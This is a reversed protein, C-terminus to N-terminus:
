KDGLVAARRKAWGDAAKANMTDVTTRNKAADAVIAHPATGPVLRQTNTSAVVTHAANFLTALSDNTLKGVDRGAILTEVAKNTKAGEALATRMLAAAADAPKAAADGAPMKVGPNVIEARAYVAQLTDGTMLVGQDPTPAGPATALPATSSGNEDDAPIKKKLEEIEADKAAIKAVLDDNDAQLKKVMEDADMVETELMEEDGVRYAGLIRKLFGPAKKPIAIPAASSPTPTTMTSDGDQISCQPGARGRQVLALHNGRINIQRALGPAIEEYDVDYGASVERIENSEVKQITDADMLLLDAVVFDGDRRVNQLHGQSLSRWSEADVARGPHQFTVPKGEFSALAKPSFVEEPDRRVVILGDSRPTTPVEMASYIQEGVRAFPVDKCLLFGEPTKYRKPGLQSQAFFQM